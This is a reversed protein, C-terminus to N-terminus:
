MEMSFDPAKTSPSGKVLTDQEKTKQHNFSAAKEKSEAKIMELASTKAGSKESLSQILREKNDTVIMADHRARSLSVYFSRQHSLEIHSEKSRLIGIVSDVTKGQSAFATMSYAHDIHKFDSDRTPLIQIGHNETMLKVKNKTLSLVQAQAGNTMFPYVSSNKTFRIRENKALPLNDTRYLSCFGEKFKPTFVRSEGKLTLLHIKGDKTKEVTYIEDKKIKLEKLTKHLIVM